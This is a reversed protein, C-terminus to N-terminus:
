LSWKAQKLIVTTTFVRYNIHKKVLLSTVSALDKNYASDPDNYGTASKFDKALEDSLEKQIGNASQALTEGGVSDVAIM